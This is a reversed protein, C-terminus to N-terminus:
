ILQLRVTETGYISYLIVSIISKIKSMCQAAYVRFANYFNLAKQYTQM